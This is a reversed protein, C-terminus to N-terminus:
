DSDTDSDSIMAQSEQLMGDNKKKKKKIDTVSSTAKNVKAVKRKKSATAIPVDENDSSTEM